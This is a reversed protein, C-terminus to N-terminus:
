KKCRAQVAMEEGEVRNVSRPVGSREPEESKARHGM